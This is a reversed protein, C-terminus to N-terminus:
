GRGRWVCVQMTDFPLDAGYKAMFGRDIYDKLRWAWGGEFALWGKTGVAYQGGASILSLFTSQPM